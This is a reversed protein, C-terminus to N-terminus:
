VISETGCQSTCIGTKEVQVGTSLRYVSNTSFRFIENMIKPSTGM